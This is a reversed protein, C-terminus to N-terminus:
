APVFAEFQAARAREMVRQDQRRLLEAYGLIVLFLLPAHWIFETDFFSRVTGVALICAAEFALQREFVPLKVDRVYRLLLWWTGLIALLLPVMGWFGTGVLVEMYDSHLTSANVKLNGLVAFKGAAYAGLGTFPHQSFQHWAFGWWDTRRTLSALEATSQDRRVFNWVADGLPTLFALPAGVAALTMGLRIRKSLVFFVVLALIFGALASRTQSALLSGTGFVVLLLNWRRNNAAGRLPLLRCLGLIALVAGAEGVSNAGMIPFVGNLAYSGTRGIHPHLAEDPWILVGIWVWLLQALFVAWTLTFLSRYEESSRVVALVLALLAVDVLFEWSKYLTWTPYVSWLSSVACVIGYAALAGVPGRFLSGLWPPRRVAFKVALVAFVLAQPVVRMLAWFDLPDTRAASVERVRFVLSSLFILLWLWHWWTMETWLARAQSASETVAFYIAILALPFCVIVLAAAGGGFWGLLSSAAVSLLGGIAIFLLLPALTKLPGRGIRPRTNGHLSSTAM